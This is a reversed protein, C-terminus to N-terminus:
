LRYKLMLRVTVTAILTRPKSYRTLIKSQPRLRLRYMKVSELEVARTTKIVKDDGAGAGGSGSNNSNNNNNNNSSSSIVEV